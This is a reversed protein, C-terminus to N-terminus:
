SEDANRVREGEFRFNLEEYGLVKERAGGRAQFAKRMEPAKMRLWCAKEDWRKPMKGKEGGRIEGNPGGDDGGKRVAEDTECCWKYMRQMYELDKPPTLAHFGRGEGRDSIVSKRWKQMETQSPLPLRGSWVRAVVAAQSEALPFPM